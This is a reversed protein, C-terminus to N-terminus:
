WSYRFMVQTMRMFGSQAVIRGFAANGQTMTMNSGRPQLRNFLNIVEIKIQATRGGGLGLNKAVSLDTQTLIPSRTSTIVRPANGFRGAAAASFAAPNVWAVSPHDQSAIRDLWDGATSTDVGSVVDPRQRNGLLNSNSNSQTLGFPFGSQWTFVAAATWGGALLNGVPSKGIKHDKGFPLAVIPAVVFRHPTDLIGNTYDVLPDFCM